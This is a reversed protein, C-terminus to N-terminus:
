RQRLHAVDDENLCDRKVVSGAPITLWGGIAVGPVVMTGAGILTGPGVEVGGCLVAGPAIHAFSGIVCDHEVTANSNIIVHHGIAVNVQVVAGAMIVTGGGLTRDTRVIASPDIVLGWKAAGGFNEAIQRRAKNDGIGIVGMDMAYESKWPFAHHNGDIIATDPPLNQRIVKAHGGNGWIWM